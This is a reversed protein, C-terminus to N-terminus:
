SMMIKCIVMVDQLFLTKTATQLWVIIDWQFILPFLMSLAGNTDTVPCGSLLRLGKPEKKATLM